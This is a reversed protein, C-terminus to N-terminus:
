KGPNPKPITLIPAFIGNTSILTVKENASIVLPHELSAKYIYELVSLSTRAAAASKHGGGGLTKAIASVDVNGKADSRFSLVLQGKESIFYPVAVDYGKKCLANGVESALLNVNVAAAKLRLGQHNLTFEHIHSTSSNIAIDDFELKIRGRELLWHYNSWEPDKDPISSDRAVHEWRAMDAGLLPLAARVPATNDREWKWLDGDQVDLLLDPVPDRPHFHKWALVAGSQDMDFKAYSLGELAEKATKHHDLVLISKSRLRLEELVDRPYSFDLIYVESGDEIEPPADGYQVATYIASNGYKKWAAYRAGTGDFCHKHYLIHTKSM